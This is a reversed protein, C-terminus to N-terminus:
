LINIYDWSSGSATRSNTEIVLLLMLFRFVFYVTLGRAVSLINDTIFNQVAVRPLSRINSQLRKRAMCFNIKGWLKKVRNSKEESAVVWADYFINSLTAVIQTYCVDTPKDPLFKPQFIGTAPDLDKGAIDLLSHLKFGGCCAIILHLLSLISCLWLFVPGNSYMNEWQVFLQYVLTLQMLSVISIGVIVAVVIFNVFDQGFLVNLTKWATARLSFVYKGSNGESSFFRETFEKWSIKAGSILPLVSKSLEMDRHQIWYYMGVESVGNEAAFEKIREGVTGEIKESVHKTVEAVQGWHFYLALAAFFLHLVALVAKVITSSRNRAASRIDCSLCCFSSVSLFSIRFVNQIWGQLTLYLICAFQIESVIINWFYHWEICYISVCIIVCVYLISTIIFRRESGSWTKIIFWYLGFLGLPISPFWLGGKEKLVCLFIDEYLIKPTQQLAEHWNGYLLDLLSGSVSFLRESGIFLEFLSFLDSASILLLSIVECVVAFQFLIPNEEPIYKAVIHQYVSLLGNCASCIMPTFLLCIIQHVPADNSVVPIFAYVISSLVSILSVCIILFKVDNKFIFKRVVSAAVARSLWNFAFSSQHLVLKKVLVCALQSVLMWL